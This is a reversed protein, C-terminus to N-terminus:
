KDVSEASSSLRQTVTPNDTCDEAAEEELVVAGDDTPTLTFYSTHQFKLVENGWSTWGPLLSRAFLELCKAEAGLYPKLVESLSPKQSHLASPVSVILRQDEVPVESAESSRTENYVRWIHDGQDLAM